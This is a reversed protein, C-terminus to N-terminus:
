VVAVSIPVKFIDHGALQNVPQILEVFIILIAGDPYCIRYPGYKPFNRHDM